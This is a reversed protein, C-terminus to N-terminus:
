SCFFVFVNWDMNNYRILLDVCGGSRFLFSKSLSLVFFMQVTNEEKIQTVMLSLQQNSERKLRRLVIIYVIFAVRALSAIVIGAIAGQSLDSGSNKTTSGLVVSTNVKEGVDYEKKNNNSNNNNNNNNNNGSTDKIAMGYTREIADVPSTCEFEWWSMTGSHAGGFFMVLVGTPSKEAPAFFHLKLILIV